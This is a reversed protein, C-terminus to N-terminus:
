FLTYVIRCHSMCSVQIDTTVIFLSVVIKVASNRRTCDKKKVVCPITHVLIFRNVFYHQNYIFQTALDRLRYYRRLRLIKAMKCQVCCVGLAVWVYKLTFLYTVLCFRGKYWVENTVCAYPMLFYTPCCTLIHM